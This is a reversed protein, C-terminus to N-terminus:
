SLSTVIKPVIILCGAVAAGLAAVLVAGAAMDKMVKIAPNVEPKFYDLLHELVTNLLEAVMVISVFAIVIAWELWTAGLIALVVFVTITIILHIQFNREHKLASGIGAFAARFSRALTSDSKLQELEASM